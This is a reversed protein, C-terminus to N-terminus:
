GSGTPELMSRKPWNSIAMAVVLATGYFFDHIWIKVGQLEFGKTGVALAFIALTTGWANFKGGKLQTAGLFVAAFGSLLFSASIGPSAAGIRASIVVGAVAGFISSIVLSGVVYQSVPIGILRASRVSGGIAYMRRGVPMRETVFWVLATLVLAFWVPWTLGFLKNSALDTFSVDRIGLTRGGSIRLDIAGIISGSGLTAILSSLRFYAILLANVLGVAISIGIVVLAGEWWTFGHEAMLKALITSSLGLTFAVSIDFVGALVPILVGLAVIITVSQQSAMTTWTSQRLFTDPIRIAFYAFLAAALYLASVNLPSMQRLHRWWGDSLFLSGRTQGTDVDGAESVGVESDPAEPNTMTNKGQGMPAM